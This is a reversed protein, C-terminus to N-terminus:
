RPRVTWLLHLFLASFPSRRKQGKMKSIAGVRGEGFRVESVEGSGPFM